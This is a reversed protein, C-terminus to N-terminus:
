FNDKMNQEVAKIWDPTSDETTDINFTTISKNDEESSDELNFNVKKEFCIVALKAKIDELSYKDINERVDKKDEDSLMYFQNILNNKELREINAKFTRLESLTQELESYKDKLSNYEEELLTYKKKNEDEEEEADTDEEEKEEESSDEKEEDEEKKEFTSDVSEVDNENEDLSTESLNDEEENSFTTTTNEIELGVSPELQEETTESVIKENVDVTNGGKLAYELEKMMNFLTQKFQDNLTFSSSVNQPTISAGEFCPEVDDGLICLKSFIADNIIFFEMDEKINKAWHGKLSKEDLEMSQPKGEGDKLIQEAQKFQGTWLYGTTMLYTRTIVNGFEDTDQFDKFWVKANPAVFGYPKTLCNFHIGDGDMILQEGHDRFDEADEKYYGVIPAGRLTKAMEAAVDKSIYSGNRNEGVYLVKIDCSSMLPNIDLEQLNIFQPSSITALSQYKLGM